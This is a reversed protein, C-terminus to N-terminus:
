AQNCGPAPQSACPDADLLSLAWLTEPDWLSGRAWPDGMAVSVPTRVCAAERRDLRRQRDQAQRRCRECCYQRRATVGDPLTRGCYACRRPGSPAPSAPM